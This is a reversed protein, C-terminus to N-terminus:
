PLSLRNGLTSRPTSWDAGLNLDPRFNLPPCHSMSMKPAHGWEELCALM